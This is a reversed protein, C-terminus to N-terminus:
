IFHAYKEIEKELRNAPDLFFDACMMVQERLKKYQPYLSSLQFALINPMSSYWDCLRRWNNDANLGNSYINTGNDSSFWKQCMEVFNHGNQNSKDIGALTAAVVAALNNIGEDGGPAGVYSVMSFSRGKYNIQRDDWKNLPFFQGDEKFSFILNDYDLAVQKWDRIYFPTPMDPMFRVRNIHKQAQITNLGSISVIIFLLYRKM